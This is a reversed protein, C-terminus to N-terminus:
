VGVDLRRSMEGKKRKLSFWDALPMAAVSCRRGGVTLVLAVASAM